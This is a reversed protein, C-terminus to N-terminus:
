HHDSRSAQAVSQVSGNHASVSTGNDVQEATVRKALEIVAWRIVSAAGKGHGDRMAYPRLHDVVATPVTVTTRGIVPEM